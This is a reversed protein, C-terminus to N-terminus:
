YARAFCYRFFFFFFFGEKFSEACSLGPGLHFESWAVRTRFRESGVFWLEVEVGNWTV